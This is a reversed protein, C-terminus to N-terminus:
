VYLPVGSDQTISSIGNCDIEHQEVLELSDVIRLPEDVDITEIATANISIPCCGLSLGDVQDGEQCLVTLLCVLCM